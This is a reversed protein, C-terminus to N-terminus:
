LNSGRTRGGRWAEEEEDEMCISSSRSDGISAIMNRHPVVREPQMHVKRAKKAAARLRQRSRKKLDADPYSDAELDGVEVTGAGACATGDIGAIRGDAITVSGISSQLSRISVSDYVLPFNVAYKSASSSISPPSKHSSHTVSSNLPPMCQKSQKSQPHFPSRPQYVYWSRVAILPLTTVSQSLLRLRPSKHHRRRKPFSPILPLIPIQQLLFKNFIATYLSPLVICRRLCKKDTATERESDNELRWEFCDYESYEM